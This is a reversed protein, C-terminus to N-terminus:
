EYSSSVWYSHGYPYPPVQNWYAVLMWTGTFNKEQQQSVYGSVSSLYQEAQTGLETTYMKYEVTGESRPDHDNWYAALVNARRIYFYRSPFREPYWFYFYSNGFSIVGNSCVQLTYNLFKLTITLGYLQNLILLLTNVRLKTEIRSGLPLGSHTFILNSCGIHDFNNLQVGDEASIDLFPLFNTGKLFVNLHM